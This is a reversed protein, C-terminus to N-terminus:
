PRWELSERASYMWCVLLFPGLGFSPLPGDWWDERYGWSRYEHRVGIHLSFGRWCLTLKGAMDLYIALGACDFVPPKM